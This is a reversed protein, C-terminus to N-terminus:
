AEKRVAAALEVLRDAIRYLEALTAEDFLAEEGAADWIASSANHLDYAATESATSMYFVIARKGM